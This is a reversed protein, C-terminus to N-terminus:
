LNNYSYSTMIMISILSFYQRPSCNCYQYTKICPQLAKIPFKANQILDNKLEDSVKVIQNCLLNKCGSFADTHIQKVTHPINIVKLNSCGQFAYQGIIELQDDEPLLVYLLNKCGYFAGESITKVKGPLSFVQAGCAPPFVYLTDRDYNFLAYNETVFHSNLATVSKLNKCGYFPRVGIQSLHCNENITFSELSECHSFCQDGIKTTNSPVVFETLSTYSFCENGIIKISDPLKEIISLSIAKYFALESLVEIISNENFTVKIIGSNLFAQPQISTISAPFEINELSKTNAFSYSNITKLSSGLNISDLQECQNFAYEGIVTLESFEINQLSTCGSFAEKGITEVSPFDLNQLKICGYFCKSPITTIADPFNIIESLNSCGKFTEEQIATLESSSDFTIKSLQTKGSFASQLIKVVSNPIVVEYINSSLFQTIETKDKNFILFQDEDFSYASNSGFELVLNPSCNTFAGGGLNTISPLSIFALKSCETFCGIGISTVSNPISINTLSTCHRFTYDPLSTLKSESEFIVEKLNESYQFVYQGMYKVNAPITISILKTFIFAYKGINTLSDPLEISEMQSYQFSSSYIELIGNPVVCKKIKTVSYYLITSDYSIVM